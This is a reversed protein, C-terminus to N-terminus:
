ILGCPFSYAKRIDQEIKRRGEYQKNPTYLVAFMLTHDCISEWCPERDHSEIREKVHASEGVDIPYYSTGDFCLVLYVGSLDKLNITNSFPGEFTYETNSTGKVTIAM